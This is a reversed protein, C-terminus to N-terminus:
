SPCDCHVVFPDTAICTSIPYIEVKRKLIGVKEVRM